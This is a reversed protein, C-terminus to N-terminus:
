LLNNKSKNRWMSITSKLKEVSIPKSLYDDMGAHICKKQDDLIASATLAIIVPQKLHKQKRIEKTTEIGDLNPMGLDMFIIDYDTNEIKALAKNGDSVIDPKLGLGEFQKSMVLQNIENDEAILISLEKKINQESNKAEQKSTNNLIVNFTFTTGSGVKSNVSIKGGLLEIINKSIVLGLGSGTQQSKKGSASQYFKQFLHPIEKKDIGLGTDKISFILENADGNVDIHVSGKPTFKVANAVLNLLVQTLKNKDGSYSKSLNPSVSYGVLLDKKRATVKGLEVVMNLVSELEFDYNELTMKNAEIKSIDLVNNILSLLIEGSDSITKNYFRAEDSLEITAMLETMGLIGNLPTRIEHSMNALFQTKAENSKEAEKKAKELDNLLTTRESIDRAINVHCIIDSTEPDLVQLINSDVKTPKKSHLHLVNGEVRASGEESVITNLLNDIANSSEISLIDSFHLNSIDQDIGFHKQASSNIYIFRGDPNTFFIFDDSLEIARVFMEQKHKTKSLEEETLKRKKIQSALMRNWIVILIIIMLLSAVIIIIQTYNVKSKSEFRYWKNKIKEIDTGSISSIGKNLVPILQKNEHDLSATLNFELSNETVSGIRLDKLGFSKIHYIAIPLLTMYGDIKNSSVLELGKKVDKVRVFELNPYEQELQDAFPNTESIGVTFDTVYKLKNKYPLDNSTVLAFPEKIIPYTIPYTSNTKTMRAIVGFDIEGSKLRKYIDNADPSVSPTLKVVLRESLLDLYDGFIGTLKNDEGVKALPMWSGIYGIKLEKKKKLFIAEKDTLLLSGGNVDAHDFSIWSDLLNVRDKIIIADICKDLISKLEPWDKRISYILELPEDYILFDMQIASIGNSTLYYQYTSLTIIHSIEQTILAQTLEERTMYEVITISTNSKLIEVAKSFGKLVGVKKNQLDDLRTPKEKLNDLSFIATYVNIYPKSFNFYQARNEAKISTVLGDLKKAKAQELVSNWEDPIIKINLGSLTNIKEILEFDFGIAKGDELFVFPAEEKAGGFKIEPHNNIFNLEEENFTLNITVSNSLMWKKILRNKIRPPISKLGKNIISKLITKDKRLSYVIECPFESVVYNILVNPIGREITLYNINAGSIAFDISRSSLANLIQDQTDFFVITSNPIDTAIKTNFADGKQIAITKGSFDNISTANNIRSKDHSYIIQDSRIYVDSFNLKEKRNNIVASYALGDIEERMAKLVMDNWNGTALKINLGTADSLLKLHDIEFGTLNGKKDKIIFPMFQEDIGFTLTPNKRVYEKEEETLDILQASLTTALLFTLFYSIYIKM